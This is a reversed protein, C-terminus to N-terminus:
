GFKYVADQIPPWRPGAGGWARSFRALGRPRYRRGYIAPSDIRSPLSVGRHGLGALCFPKRDQFGIPASQDPGRAPVEVFQWPISARCTLRELLKSGTPQGGTITESTLSCNFRSARAPIDAMASTLKECHMSAGRWLEVSSSPYVKDGTLTSEEDPDLQFLQM